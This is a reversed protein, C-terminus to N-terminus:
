SGGQILYPWNLSLNEVYVDWLGMNLCTLINTGHGQSNYFTVFLYALAQPYLQAVRESPSKFASVQDEPHPTAHLASVLRVINYPLSHSLLPHKALSSSSSSVGWLLLNCYIFSHCDPPVVQSETYLGALTILHPM